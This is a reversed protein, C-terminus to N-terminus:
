GLGSWNCRCRGFHSSPIVVLKFLLISRISSARHSCGSSLLMQVSPGNLRASSYHYDNSKGDETGISSRNHRAFRWSSSGIRVSAPRDTQRRSDSAAIHYVEAPDLNCSIVLRYSKMTSSATLLVVPASICYYYLFSFLRTGDYPLWAMSTRVAATGRQQWRLMMVTSRPLNLGQPNGPALILKIIVLLSCAGPRENITQQVCGLIAISRCEQPLAVRTIISLICIPVVPHIDADLLSPM